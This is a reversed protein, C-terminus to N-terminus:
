EPWQKKVMKAKAKDMKCGPKDGVEWKARARYQYSEWDNPNLQICRDFDALTEDYLFVNQYACAHFFYFEPDIPNLQIARSYSEISEDYNGELFLLAGLGAHYDANLSDLYITSIFIERANEYDHLDVLAMATGYYAEANKPDLSMVKAYSDIAEQYKKSDYQANGLLLYAQPDEPFLFTNVWLVNRASTYREEELWEDGIESIYDKISPYIESIESLHNKCNVAISVVRASDSSFDKRSLLELENIYQSVTNRKAACHQARLSDKEFILYNYFASKPKSIETLYFGYPEFIQEMEDGTKAKINCGGHLTKKYANAYKEYIILKGGSNLKTALDKIMSDAAHIEHFTNNLIIKDFYAEPLNTKEETGIVMTFSNTQPTDRQSSFHRIVADLQEENLLNTDIDQVFFTVSDVLVSLAGDLWGSAAGVEAIVDGTNIGYEIVTQGYFEEIQKRNFPYGYRFPREPNTSYIATVDMNVYKDKGVKSGICGSLLAAAVLPLISFYSREKKMIGIKTNEKFVLSM